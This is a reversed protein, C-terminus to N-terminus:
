DGTTGDAFRMWTKYHWPDSQSIQILRAGRTHFHRPDSDPLNYDAYGISSDYGLQIGKYEGIYNNIHDHGCFVGKVDGRDLIAAFLGSNIQAPCENENRDGKFKKEAVMESFERLPIHFCMIGPIKKGYKKELDQSTKYYWAVQDTHIWDYGGIGSSAYDGSDILWTCFVPKKDNSDKILLADNGVGHIDKKGLVNLNCPYSQYIKMVDIKSLGTKAFHAQDHNGFVIVWPIMRKEVPDAVCQIAQKVQDKTQCLSGSICDGDVVVLNPKEEDLVKGMLETAKPNIKPGDQVDSYVMIKFTGDQRSKLEPKSALSPLALSAVMTM